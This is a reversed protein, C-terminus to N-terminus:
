AGREEGVFGFLRKIRAAVDRHTSVQKVINLMVTLARAHEGTRELADALTFLVAWRQEIEPAQPAM